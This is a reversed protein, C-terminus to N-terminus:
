DEDRGIMLSESWMGNSVSVNFVGGSPLGQTSVVADGGTLDIGLTTRVEGVHAVMLHPYRAADWRIRVGARDSVVSVMPMGSPTASIKRHVILQGARSILIESIDGLDDIGVVFSQHDGEAQTLLEVSATQEGKAGRAVLTLEGDQSTHPGVYRYLPRFTAIGAEITGRVLLMESQEGSQFSQPQSNELFTMVASYNYSSVWEPSCYSMLDKYSAPNVLKSLKSDYGWSGISGNSYPYLPDAGVVSGCPAHSRGMNHGIEHVVTSLSDDRGIASPAGINGLGAVGSVGVVNVYGYYYQKSGDSVRLGAIGELLPKWNTAPSAMVQNMFTFPARVKMELGKLPWHRVMEGAMDPTAATVFTDTSDYSMVPVATVYMVTGTGVNASLSYTNNSEDSEAALDDPDVSFRVELGPAVREAPVMATFSQALDGPVEATPLVDPGVLQLPAVMTGNLYIAARVQINKTNPRDALVFARVLAPKGAVLSVTSDSMVSQGWEARSVRVDGILSRYQVVVKKTAMGGRGDTVTLEPVFQAGERFTHAQISASTCPSITYEPGGAGDVDVACTLADGDADSLTWSLKAMVPAVGAEPTVVFSAIVPARNAQNAVLTFSGKGTGGNPDFAQVTVTRSGPATLTQEFSGNACNSLQKEAKGDEDADLWCSILDGDPDAASFTCRTTFPADGRAPACLVASVTPDQNKKPPPGCSCLACVVVAVLARWFVM